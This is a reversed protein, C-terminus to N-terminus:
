EAPNSSRLSSLVAEVNKQREEWGTYDGTTLVYDGPSGEVQLRDDSLAQHLDDLEVQYDNAVAEIFADELESALENHDDDDFIPYDQLGRAIDYAARFAKTLKGKKTKVKVKICLFRSYTWHGISAETVDKPYLERLHALVSRYNSYGIAYEDTLQPDPTHFMLTHTVYLDDDWFSAESPRTLAEEAAEAYTEEDFDFDTM